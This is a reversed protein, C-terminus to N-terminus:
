FKETAPREGAGRPPIIRMSAVLGDRFTIVNQIQQERAGRPTAIELRVQLVLSSNKWASLGIYVKADVEQWQSRWHREVAQKGHLMGEAGGDWEVDVHLGALAADIQRANYADYMRRVTEIENMMTGGTNGYGGVLVVAAAALDMASPHEGLVLAGAGLAVIPAVYQFSNALSPRTVRDLWAFLTYGLALGIVGLYALSLLAIADLELQDVAITESPIAIILVVFGASLTQVAGSVIADTPLDAKNAYLSGAAWSASGILVIAIPGLRLDGQSQGFFVMLTLGLTGLAIGLMARRDVADGGLMSFLALFLPASSVFVATRGAPLFQVGWIIAGQGIVLLLVGAIVGNRLQVLSPMASRRAVAISLLVVAAVFLRASMLWIPPMSELAFKFAIFNGGTSLWTGVLALGIAFRAPAGGQRREVAMTM